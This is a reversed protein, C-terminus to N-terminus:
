YKSKKGYNSPYKQMFAKFNTAYDRAKGKNPQQFFAKQRIKSFDAYLMYSKFFGNTDFQILFAESFYTMSKYRIKYKNGREIKHYMLLFQTLKTLSLVIDICVWQRLCNNDPALRPPCLM